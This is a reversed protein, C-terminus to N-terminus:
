CLWAWWAASRLTHQVKETLQMCLRVLLPLLCCLLHVAFPSHVASSLPKCQM